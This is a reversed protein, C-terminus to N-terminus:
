VPHQCFYKGIYKALGAVRKARAGIGISQRLPIRQGMYPEDGRKFLTKISANRKLVLDIHEAELQNAIDHRRRIATRALM